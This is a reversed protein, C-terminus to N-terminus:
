SSPRKTTASMSSQHRGASVIQFASPRQDRYVRTTDRVSPARDEGEGEGEGETNRYLMVRFFLVTVHFLCASQWNDGLSSAGM